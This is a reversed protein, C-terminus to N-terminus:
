SELIVVVTNRAKIQICIYLAKQNAAGWYAAMLADQVLTDTMRESMSWGVISRAFLDM